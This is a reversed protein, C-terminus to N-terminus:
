SMAHPLFSTGYQWNGAIARRRLLEARMQRREEQTNYYQYIWGITEDEAWLPEIEPHNICAWCNWYRRNVRFCDGRPRSVTLSYRSTWPLSTLFAALYCRYADGTEGLAAGALRQYLQFGRSQYGRAISELLLGRAEMMRLAVLRNLM